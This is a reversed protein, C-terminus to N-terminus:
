VGSVGGPLKQHRDMELVDDLHIPEGFEVRVSPPWFQKWPSAPAIQQVNTFPNDVSAFLMIVNGLGVFTRQGMGAPQLGSLFHLATHRLRTDLPDGWRAIWAAGWRPPRGNLLDRIQAPSIAATQPDDREWAVAVKALWRYLTRQDGPTLDNRAGQILPTLIPAAASELASMWGNNCDACVAVTAFVAHESKSDLVRAPPILIMGSPDIAPGDQIRRRAGHRQARMSAAIPDLERLWRALIHERTENMGSRLPTGCFPCDSRLAKLQQRFEPSRRRERDLLELRDFEPDPVKTTVRQLQAEEGCYACPGSTPAEVNHKAGIVFEGQCAACAYHAFKTRVSSNVTLVGAGRVAM